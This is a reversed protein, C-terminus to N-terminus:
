ALCGTYMNNDITTAKKYSGEAVRASQSVQEAVSAISPVLNPLQQHVISAVSDELDSASQDGSAVLRSVKTIAEDRKTTAVQARKLWSTIDNALSSDDLTISTTTASAPPSASSSAYLNKDTQQQQQQPPVPSPSKVTNSTSLLSSTKFSSPLPSSM